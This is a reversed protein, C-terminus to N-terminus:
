RHIKQSSHFGRAKIFHFIFSTRSSPPRLLGNGNPFSTASQKRGAPFFSKTM